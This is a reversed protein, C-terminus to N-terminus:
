EKENDMIELFSVNGLDISDDNSKGKFYVKIRM